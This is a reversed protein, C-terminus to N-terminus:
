GYGQRGNNGRVAAKYLEEIAQGVPWIDFERRYRAFGARGLSAMWEPRTALRRLARALEDADAVPVVLGTEEHRVVWPAGSGPIDSVVCPKGHAMAELLVVGFAETRELSPLCFVDCSAMLAHLRDTPLKGTLTVQTEVGNRRCTRELEARREGEGVIVARAEPVAQIAEVLVEFGKYHTLRGVALVRFRAGQWMVAAGDRVEQSVAPIRTASLGLPVVHCKDRWPALAESAARYPSSTTIVVAARHLLRQELLWYVQYALRLRRDIRAGAVDAHWHVVWPIRRAAPLSLAWFASTNPMHLHLVDPQESRIARALWWPFAPSVPAYLLRGWAPARFISMGGEGAGAGEPWCEVKGKLGSEHAHVVATARVNSGAQASLLDALFNEIGGAFPPFYKGVHLVREVRHTGGNNM